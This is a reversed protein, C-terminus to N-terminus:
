DIQLLFALSYYFRTRLPHAIGSLPLPPLCTFSLFLSPFPPIASHTTPCIWNLLIQSPSQVLFISIAFVFFFM